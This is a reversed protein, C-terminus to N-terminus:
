KKLNLIEGQYRDKIIEMAESETISESASVNTFQIVAFVLLAALLLGSASIIILKHKM